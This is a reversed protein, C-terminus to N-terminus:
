AFSNKAESSPSSIQIIREYNDRYLIKAKWAEQVEIGLREPWEIAMIGQIEKAQEEEQLFLENAANENELRYLDIHILPQKGSLYHQALAFTPSTIIEKVGLGKGIGKVLTTKGAGLPGELFLIKIEQFNKILEEGFVITDELNKLIESYDSSQQRILKPVKLKRESNRSM